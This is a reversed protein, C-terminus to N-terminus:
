AARSAPSSVNADGLGTSALVAQELAECMEWLGVCVVGHEATRSRGLEINSLGCRRYLRAMGADYVGTIQRVGNRLGFQIIGLLLECAATSVRNPQASHDGLVVFRTAEWIIPSRFGIEPFMKRFPGSMMHPMATSILRVSGVLEGFNDTAMLYVTDDRDYEDIEFQGDVIGVDWKKQDYFVTKRQRFMANFQNKYKFQEHGEVQTLM